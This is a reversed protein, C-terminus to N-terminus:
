SAISIVDYKGSIVSSTRSLLPTSQMAHRRESERAKAIDQRYYRALLLYFVTTLWYVVWICLLANRLSYYRSESTTEDGHFLDSLWGILQSAPIRVVAEVLRILSIASARRHAPALNILMQQMIVGLLINVFGEFFFCVVSIPFNVSIFTIEGFYCLKPVIGVVVVTIPMVLDTSPLCRFIGTGSEITKSLYAVMPLSLVTGVVGINSIISMVAPYSFGAFTNPFAEFADLTLSPVWFSISMAFFMGLSQGIMLFIYAKSRLMGLASSLISACRNAAQSETSKLFFSTLIASPILITPAIALAVKWNGSSVFFANVTSSIPGGVFIGFQTCMISLPLMRGKFRDAQFVAVSLTAIEVFLNQASRFIVFLWFQNENVVVSAFSFVIWLGVASYFTTRKPLMDGFLWMLALGISHALSMFTKLSATASDSTGFYQQLSPLLAGISSGDYMSLTPFLFFCFLLTWDTWSATQQQATKSGDRAKDRLSMDGRAPIPASLSQSSTH